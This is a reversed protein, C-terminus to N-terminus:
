LFVNSIEGVFNSFRRGFYQKVQMVIIRRKKTVNFIGGISSMVQADSIYYAITVSILFNKIFTGEQSSNISEHVTIGLNTSIIV